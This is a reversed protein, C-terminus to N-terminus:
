FLFAHDREEQHPREPTKGIDRRGSRSSLRYLSVFGSALEMAKLRGTLHGLGAASLRCEFVSKQARWGFDKLIKEVQRREADETIDYAIAYLADKSPM